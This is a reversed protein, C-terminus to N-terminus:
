RKLTGLWEEVVPGWLDFSEDDFINHGDTDQAPLVHLTGNGGAQQFGDFMRKVLRPGAHSDNEAYIWLTPARATRGFARTSRTIPDPGCVGDPRNRNSGHVGSINVFGAVGSTNRSALALAGWGGGSHGLVITGTPAVDPRLQMHAITAQIDAAIALGPAVFDPSTSCVRTGGESFRGATEGYGRRLPIAVTYGRQVFFSAIAGCSMPRMDRREPEDTTLGHNIVVLPRKAGDPESSKCVRVLLGKPAGDIPAWVFEQVLRPRAGGTDRFVQSWLQTDLAASMYGDSPGDYLGDRKLNRQLARRTDRSWSSPYSLMDNLLGEHGREFAKRLWDAAAESNRPGAIGRDAYRVLNRLATLSGAEAAKTFVAAAAKADRRRGFGNEICVGLGNLGTPHNANAAAAYWNCAAVPDRDVGNGHYLAAAYEVAGAPNGADASRKFLDIARKQDRAVGRGSMLLEGLNAMALSDGSAIAKEYWAVGRAPTVPRGEGNAYCAGLNNMARNDGANAAKEFWDCGTSPDAKSTIGRTLMMGYEVMAGSDGAEAGRQFYAFAKTPNKEAGDQGLLYIDGLSRLALGDNLAAAREYWSIASAMDKPRGKGAATYCVALNNMARPLGRKAAREYWDCAENARKPETTRLHSGYDLMGQAHGREASLLYLEGARRKDATVGRGEDYLRALNRAAFPDGAATAREFVGRARALDTTRGEGSTYCWALANLMWGYGEEAVREYHDCAKTKDVAVGIGNDYLWGISFISDADGLAEGKRYWALAQALDKAVGAGREYAWGMVWISNLQGQDARPRHHDIVSQFLDAAIEANKEVGVGDQYAIALQRLAGISGAEAAQELLDIWRDLDHETGIGFRVLGALATAAEANGTAAAQETLRYAAALDHLGGRGNRHLTALSLLAPAYGLDAAAAFARRAATADGKALYARGLQDHARPNGPDAAVAAECAPIADAPKIVSQPLGREGTDADIDRAALRDCLAQVDPSQQTAIPRAFDPVGSTSLPPETRDQASTATTFACLVAAAVASRIQRLAHSM